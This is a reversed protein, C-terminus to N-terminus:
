EGKVPETVKCSLRETFEKNTYPPVKLAFLKLM